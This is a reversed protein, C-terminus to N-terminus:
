FKAQVRFYLDATAADLLPDSIDKSTIKKAYAVSGELWKLVTLSLEAGADGLAPRATGNITANEFRTAGYEAFLKPKLQMGAFKWNGAELILRGLYGTDGVAIGPLVVTLNNWGGMVWQQQEPVTDSSYQGTADLGLTVDDTFYHKVRIVPRYLLYDLNATTLASEHEGFGKRVAAGLEFDWRGGILEDSRVYSASLEGSSYLERQTTSTAGTADLRTDTTKSTRDAKAQVSLRSHFDAMIPYLWYAEGIWLLGDLTRDVPTNAVFETNAANTRFNFDLVRGGAGFVGWTTVRNWGLNEEFYEGATPKTNMGRLGERTVARLEDGWRTGTRVDADLFYRGVFRNGPNGFSVSVQTPDPGSDSPKLDFDVGASGEPKLLPTAQLGARDAHISALARRPELASDTLPTKGVLGEFYKGLPADADVRGVGELSVIVYLDQGQLAYSVVAAPYGKAYAASAIARVANSLSDAPGVAAGLEGESLVPAGFVHVQYSQFAVTAVAEGQQAQAVSVEQPPIPPPLDVAM